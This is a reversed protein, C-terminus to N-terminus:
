DDGSVDAMESAEVCGANPPDRWACGVTAKCLGKKLKNCPVEEAPAAGPAPSPEPESATAEPASAEPAEAESSEVGSPEPETSEAGPM